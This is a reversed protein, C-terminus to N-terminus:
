KNSFERIDSYGEGFVNHTLTMSMFANPDNRKVIDLIILYQNKGIMTKIMKRKRNTFGGTVDVITTGRDLALIEKNIAEWNESIIDCFYAETGVRQTFEVALTYSIVSILGVVIEYLSFNAVFAFIVLLGDQILFIHSLKIKSYKNIILGPIDFGGTSGGVKYSVGCGVGMILGGIIACVIPDFLNFQEHLGNFISLKFIYIFLPCAITSLLTHLAFKKGLFIAGLIFLVVTTITIINEVILSSNTVNSFFLNRLILSFSSTGGSLIGNFEVSSIKLTDDVYEYSTIHIGKYNIFCFSIAFALLISGILVVVSEKILKKIIQKREM